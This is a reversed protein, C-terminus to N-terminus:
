PQGSFQGPRLATLLRRDLLSFVLYMFGRSSAGLVQEADALTRGGVFLTLFRAEEPRPEVPSDQVAWLMTSKALVVPRRKVEVALEPRQALLWEFLDLAREFDESRAVDFRFGSRGGGLSHVVEGRLRLAERGEPRLELEYAKGVPAAHPLRLLAGTSSINELEGRWAHTADRVVAPLGFALRVAGRRDHLLDVRGSM